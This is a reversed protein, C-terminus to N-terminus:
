LLAKIWTPVIEPSGYWCPSKPAHFVDPLTLNEAGDLHAAQIPTIGDGWADGIGSTLEYSNYALWRTWDWRQGSLGLLDSWQGKHGQIAEGAVCCYKIESWFAGPYHDNVFRLNTLTWRERSTHPTGLTILSAVQSRGDWVQHNYPVSGLYIRAIWGGASHGILNVKEANTQELTSRITHDLAQLIPTVPRGGLTPFWSQIKLPVLTTPYGASELYQQLPQYEVAAALYGPLIITPYRSM